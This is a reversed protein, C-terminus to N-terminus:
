IPGRFLVQKWVAAVVGCFPTTQTYIADREDFPSDRLTLIYRIIFYPFSHAICRTVSSPDDPREEFSPSAFSWVHALTYALTRCKEM